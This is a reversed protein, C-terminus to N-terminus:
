SPKMALKKRMSAIDQRVTILRAEVQKVRNKEKLTKGGRQHLRGLEDELSTKESIYETLQSELDDFTKLQQMSQETAYPSTSTM